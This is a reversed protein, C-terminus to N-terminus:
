LCSYFLKNQFSAILSNIRCEPNPYSALERPSVLLVSQLSSLWAPLCLLFGATFWVHSCCCCATMLVTLATWNMQLNSRSRLYFYLLIFPFWWGALGPIVPTFLPSVLYQTNQHSTVQFMSSWRFHVDLRLGHLGWSGHEHLQPQSHPLRQSRLASNEASLM